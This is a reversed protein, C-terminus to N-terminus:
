RFGLNETLRALYGDPDQVLFERTGSEGNGTKRWVEYPEKYFPWNAAELALLIPALGSTFIQLNIGRGYPADMAGTEWIGNRQCLMLQTGERELYAFKSEQRDYAVHFGLKACWFDLSAGIDSVLLEPVCPAWQYTEPNFANM